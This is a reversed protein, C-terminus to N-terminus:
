PFPGAETGIAPYTPINSINGSGDLTFAGGQLVFGAPLRHAFSNTYLRDRIYRLFNTVTVPKDAGYLEITMSGISTDLQVKATVTPTDALAPSLAAGLVLALLTITKAPSPPM